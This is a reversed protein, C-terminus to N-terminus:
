PMASCRAAEVKLERGDLAARMGAEPKPPFLAALIREATAAMGQDGPHAAVGPHAFRSTGARMGPESDFDTRVFSVGFKAAAASMAADKSPNRWFVGRVVTKPVMKGDRVFCGLLDSFAKGYAQVQAEDRLDRVNEGIAVILYDPAFKMEAALRETPKWNAFNSEFEYINRIRVDAKCGTEREIGATVLHVYDHAADSAAMGWNNTWGIAACPGHLTISNGLFLVKVGGEVRRETQYTDANMAESSNREADSAIAFGGAAILAAVTLMFVKKM